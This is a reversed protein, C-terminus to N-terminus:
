KTKHTRTAGTGSQTQTYGKYMSKQKGKRFNYVGTGTTNKPVGSDESKARARKARM